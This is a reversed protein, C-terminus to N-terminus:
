SFCPVMTTTFIAALNLVLIRRTINQMSKEDGRAADMLWSLMDNQPQNFILIAGGQLILFIFM